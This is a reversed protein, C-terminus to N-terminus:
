QEPVEVVAWRYDNLVGSRPRCLPSVVRLIRLGNADGSQLACVRSRAIPAWGSPYSR